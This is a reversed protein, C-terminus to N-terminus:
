ARLDDRGSEECSAGERKCKGEGVGRNDSRAKGQATRVRVVGLRPVPGEIDDGKAENSKVDYVLEDHLYHFDTELAELVQQGARKPDNEEVNAECRKIMGGKPKDGVRSRSPQKGQVHEHPPDFQQLVQVEDWTKLHRENGELRCGRLKDEENEDDENEDSATGKSEKPYKDIRYGLEAGDGLREHSEELKDTSVDGEGDEVANTDAILCQSLDKEDKVYECHQNLRRQGTKSRLEDEQRHENSNNGLAILCHSFLDLAVEVNGAHERFQSAQQGDHLVDFHM